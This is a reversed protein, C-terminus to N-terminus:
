WISYVYMTRLNCEKTHTWTSSSRFSNKLYNNTVQFVLLIRISIGFISGLKGNLHTGCEASVKAGLSHGVLHVSSPQIRIKQQLYTIFKALHAGVLEANREAILIDPKALVRWNVGCVNGGTYKLLSKLIDQVWALEWNETWGHIVFYTLLNPILKEGIKPDGDYTHEFKQTTSFVTKKKSRM